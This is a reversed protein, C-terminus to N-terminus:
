AERWAPDYPLSFLKQVREARAPAAGGLTELAARVSALRADDRLNAADGARDIRDLIAALDILRHRMEIFHRNLVAEATPQTTM